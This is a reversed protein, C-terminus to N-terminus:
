QIQLSTGPTGLNTSTDYANYSCARAVTSGSVAGGSWDTPACVKNKWRLFYQSMEVPDAQSWSVTVTVKQTSPDLTGTSATCTTLTGNTDTIGTISRATTTDRCVNQVVFSRSYSSNNLPIPTITTTTAWKNGSQVTDYATLFKDLTYLNQWKEETIGRIAELAESALGVAIDREGSVKGSVMSVYVAQAGVGLIVTLIAIVILLELLLSGKQTAQFKALQTIYM